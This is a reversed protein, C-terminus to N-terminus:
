QMSSEVDLFCKKLQCPLLVLFGEKGLFKYAVYQYKMEKKILLRAQVTRADAGKDAAYMSLSSIVMLLAAIWVTCRQLQIRQLLYTMPRDGRNTPTAALRGSDVANRLLMGDAGSGSIRCGGFPLSDLDTPWSGSASSPDPELANCRLYAFHAWSQVSSRM